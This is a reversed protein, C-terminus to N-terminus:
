KLKGKRPASRPGLGDLHQALLSEFLRLPARHGGQLWALLAFYYFSFFSAAILASNADAALEGSQKAREALATVHRHVDAVQASFRTSWPPESFLSERLLARSLLPREAYYKFFVQALRSLEKPLSRLGRGDRAQEWRAQLDEFLAAHLLDRKDTCHLLVTGTAVGAAKAVGRISTAEFGLAELQAKAVELIRARTAQKSLQRAKSVKPTHIESFTNM